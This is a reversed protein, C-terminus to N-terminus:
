KVIIMKTNITLESRLEILYIGSKLTGRKLIIKDSTVNNMELVKKGLINYLTMKHNSHKPNSFEVTAYESFPNPYVKFKKVSIDNINTVRDVTVKWEQVTSGDEATVTYIVLSSFDNPTVGSEQVADGIKVTAGESLTFAAILNTLDTESEVEIVITWTDPNIVSEGTQPPIGFGFELIETETNPVVLVTIVWDQVTTGDEATVTYTVPNTFDNATVGSVQVVDGINSTADVSLLFEASLNTLDTGYEVEIVITHNVANIITEATQPPTGFGFELIDTETNPAISVTILWDRVTIGNEATITYTVPSTFDNSTNGSVQVVGSVKASAGGSLTFIAVLDTLNTGYEVEIAITRTAHNITATGTQPPMGFGFTLIDTKDNLVVEKTVTIIWDQTTTGDEATITYTVPNTFDNSTNGSIQAVGGVEATAGGSLTFTSVLNTLDTGAEVEIDVTHNVEDISATGTQPPIGFSFTLIDTENSLVAAETVTVIWDQTTTGDEATITYTVPSTFDNSTTGSTQAVGGVEATAGSTLTFTSVLNTLDTGAEVEIDVTHNVEDISAAGTQPPIGFSYTLIDTETNLVVEETVTVIWEQETTGDEATITYTVPSSFDNSTTGSTQAVDGVEATAGDSLSFTAVLATLDTGSELEVDVTHNVEDISATGTQPPIGFSYILIDTENSLVVEETVSVVWDQTTTGDEATITYTVPSSFDNSTTGSTQAVGGVEATAGDSLTFTSVLNTLDTGAEVEIDVTHNVEDKSAAGTQPPIGFSYTLIDTETNLVVEETVTVIWEQETTGDEATITYTVPSSFDNSTTGSTQAVDGVEATAGDSLTFTAVLATLDTGSEVEIDVTHNVEDISATGTQPPNGFTFTLINTENSLIGSISVDDIYWGPDSASYDSHMYFAIQVEQGAFGSLDLSAYTWVTSNDDYRGSIDVWDSSGEVKLQVKGWDDDNNYFHFWHWFRLRPNQNSAPVIFSPSVLRSDVYNNYNGSLNTGACNIGGHATDPGSSPKGVQWTGSEASWDGIGNEWDEPNNFVIAGTVLSVDDIYWGPDSASYDSHMYFAIQVEQGAFGSLDLSAYTWVTSNDDYRGSIDVWDSSGEVKLQVKGWDDDNNYFHFWHWFRLRPNQNSAPVIFSPSVLRSDVYNNYNGSLNTGACNIGGHATDPGSSPKGVQWTGSEASWDGIGNEWDEPNNFVIAGTVLSVDDIYWGPDSASYDSHMYFAIQVEQGAFGSLDLSAYTWVTSNDDYRGSIDVWDSSGEVKLQVKGWDDDNNYFHFWHWFRLRPNQNSAPVIFSPSVLRSDVYNNYNGSLNTGACNIGGHATDPGSSPKGVQWTGSEASWDGIGNEWDEPNNFVIAGTVLSVDDIYWGPDSASYDSHMYFAIQVEQGAFGSLDLSAYTWVTSNDDYRGSIDVWDSSGEVKLQVKGWDDDNNYFHFWHWFRLRPNQNSAPVIFSTFRILRTEVNNSYNGGLVTAACNDGAYAANPGSTPTGVEWTGADVYWNATWDGEFTESWLVSQTNAQVFLVSLTLVIILYFNKKM